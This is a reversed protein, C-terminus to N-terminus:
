EGKLIKQAKEIAAESVFRSLAVRLKKAAAEVITLNKKSIRYFKVINKSDPKTSGKPRGAGKRKGGAL